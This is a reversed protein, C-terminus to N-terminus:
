SIVRVVTWQEWVQPISYTLPVSPNYEGSPQCKPSSGSWQGNSECRLPLLYQHNTSVQPYQHTTSVQPTSIPVTHSLYQHTTSVQPSVNLLHGQGSDMARVGSPYSTSITQVWRLTSIPQVWRLPVSPYQIHSTSIPQVWMLTSM